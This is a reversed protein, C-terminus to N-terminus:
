TFRHICAAMCSRETPQMDWVVLNLSFQWGAGRTFTIPVSAWKSIVAQKARLHIPWNPLDAKSLSVRYWDKKNIKSKGDQEQVSM